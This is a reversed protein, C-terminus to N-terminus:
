AGPRPQTPATLQLLNKLERKCKAILGSDAYHLAVQVRGYVNGACVPCGNHPLTANPQRSYVTEWSAEPGYLEHILAASRTCHLLDHESENAFHAAWWDVLWVDGTAVDPVLAFDHGHPSIKVRSDDAHAYGVVRGGFADVIRRAGHTCRGCDIEQGNVLWYSRGEAPHYKITRCLMGLYNELLLKM